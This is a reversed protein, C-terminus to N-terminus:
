ISHFSAYSLRGQNGFAIIGVIYEKVTTGNMEQEDHGYMGKLTTRFSVVPM